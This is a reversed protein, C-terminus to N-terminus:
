KGMVRVTYNFGVEVLPLQHIDFLRDSVYFLSPM